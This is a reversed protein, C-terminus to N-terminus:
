HDKSTNFPLFHHVCLPYKTLSVPNKTCMETCTKAHVYMKLEKLYIGLQVSVPNYPLIINIKYSLTFSDELTAMITQIGELILFKQSIFSYHYLANYM